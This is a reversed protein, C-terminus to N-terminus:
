HSGSGHAVAQPTPIPAWVQFLSVVAISGGPWVSHCHLPSISHHPSSPSVSLPALCVFFLAWSVDFLTKQAMPM